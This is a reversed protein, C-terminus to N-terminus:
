SAMLLALARARGSRRRINEQSTVEECHEPDCCGPNGCLHDIEYSPKIKKVHAWEWTLRYVTPTAGNLKMKPRGETMSGTWVLCPTGESFGRDPHWMQAPEDARRMMGWARRRDPDTGVWWPLPERRVTPAPLAPPTPHWGDLQRLEYRASERYPVLVPVKEIREPVKPKQEKIRVLTTPVGPARVYCWGRGQTYKDGNSPFAERHLQEPDLRMKNAAFRLEKDDEQAFTVWVSINNTVPLPLLSLNQTILVVSVGRAGGAQTLPAIEQQYHAMQGAEEVILVFPVGASAAVMRAKVLLIGGLMPADLPSLFHNMRLLVKRQSRMADVLNLDHGLAPGLTRSLGILREAWDRCARTAESNGPVPIMLAAALAPLSRPEHRNDLMNMAEWLRDRAIRQWKGTGVLGFGGVMVEAAIQAPGDLLDLGIPSSPDSTWETGDALSRVKKSLPVTDDLAVTLVGIGLDFLNVVATSKGLRTTGGIAVQLVDNLGPQLDVTVNGLVLPVYARKPRSGRTRVEPRTATGAKPRIRERDSSEIMSAVVLLLVFFSIALAILIWQGYPQWLWLSRVGAAFADVLAQITQRPEPM